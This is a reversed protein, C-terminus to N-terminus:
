SPDCGRIGAFHVKMWLPRQRSRNRRGRSAPRLEPGGRGRETVAWASGLEEQRKRGRGGYRALRDAEEAVSSRGEGGVYSQWPLPSEHPDSVCTPVGPSPWLVCPQVTSPCRSTGSGSCRDNGLQCGEQKVYPFQPELSQPSVSPSRTTVPLAWSLLSGWGDGEEPTGTMVAESPCPGVVVGLAPMSDSEWSRGTHATASPPTVPTRERPCAAWQLTIFCGGEQRWATWPRASM